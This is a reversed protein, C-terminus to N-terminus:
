CFFLKKYMYKIYKCQLKHVTCHNKRYKNRKNKIIEKKLNLMIIQKIILSKNFHNYKFFFKYYLLM